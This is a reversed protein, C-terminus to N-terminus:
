ECKVPKLQEVTCHILLTHTQEFYNFTAGDGYAYEILKIRGEFATDPKSAAYIDAASTDTYDTEPIGVLHEQSSHFRFVLLPLNAGAGASEKLSASPYCGLSLENDGGSATKIFRCSHDPQLILGPFFWEDLIAFAKALKQQKCISCPEGAAEAILGFAADPLDLAPAYQSRVVMALIILLPIKMM